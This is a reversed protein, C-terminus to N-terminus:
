ENYQLIEYEEIRWEIFEIIKDFWNDDLEVNNLEYESKITYYSDRISYVIEKLDIEPITHFRTYEKVLKKLGHFSSEYLPANCSVNKSCKKYNDIRKIDDYLLSYGNDYIPAPIIEDTNLNIIMAINHNHRDENMTIFDLLSIDRVFGRDVFKELDHLTNIQYEKPLNSNHTGIEILDCGSPKFNKSINILTYQEGGKVNIKAVGLVQEAMDMNLAIGLNYVICEIIPEIGYSNPYDRSEDRGTKIHKTLMVDEENPIIYKRLKGNSTGGNMHISKTFDYFPIASTDNFSLM